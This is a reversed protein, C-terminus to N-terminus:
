RVVTFRLTQSKMTGQIHVFWMGAPLDSIDLSIAGNDSIPLRSIERVIGASNVISLRKIEGIGQSPFTIRENAPNPVVRLAFADFELRKKGINIQCHV